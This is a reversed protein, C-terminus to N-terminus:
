VLEISFDKSQPINVQLVLFRQLLGVLSFALPNMKVPPSLGTIVFLNFGRLSKRSLKGNQPIQMKVTQSSGELCYVFGKVEKNYEQPFLYCPEPHSADPVQTAAGSSELRKNKHSFHAGNRGPAYYAESNAVLSLITCDYEVILRHCSTLNAALGRRPENHDNVAIRCM